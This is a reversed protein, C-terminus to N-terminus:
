YQYTYTLEVILPRDAFAQKQTIRITTAPWNMKLTTYLNGILGIFDGGGSVDEDTFSLTTSNENPVIWNVDTWETECTPWIENHTTSKKDYGMFNELRFYPDPQGIADYYSSSKPHEPMQILKVKTLTMGTIIQTVNIQQDSKSAEEWKNKVVLSVTKVGKDKYTHTPNQEVSTIGDGFDWFWNNVGGDSKDTFIYTGPDSTGLQNVSFKSTPKPYAVTVDLVATDQADSTRTAILMVRYTGPKSYTYSPNEGQTYSQNEEFLWRRLKVNKLTDSFTVKLPNAADITFTFSIVSKEIPTFPTNDIKKKCSIALLLIAQILLFLSMRLIRPSSSLNDM